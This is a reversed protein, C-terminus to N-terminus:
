EGDEASEDDAAEGPEDAPPVLRDTETLRLRVVDLDDMFPPIDNTAVIM